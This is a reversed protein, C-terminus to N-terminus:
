NTLSCSFYTLPTTANIGFVAINGTGGGTVEVTATDSADMDILVPCILTMEETTGNISPLVVPVTRNSTVMDLQMLVADSQATIRLAVNFQYKGTVPATFTDTSNNYDSNQDFIETDFEVTSGAAVSDTSSNLALFSSQLPKTIQGDTDIDFVVTASGNVFMEVGNGSQAGIMMDTDATGKLTGSMGVQGAKTGSKSFTVHSGRTNTSDLALAEETTDAQIVKLRAGSSVSGIAVNGNSFIRLREVSATAFAVNSATPFFMGNGTASQRGFSCNSASGAGAHVRGKFWGDVWNFSSSGLDYTDDTKTGANFPIFDGEIWDFKNEVESAKARAGAVLSPWVTGTM